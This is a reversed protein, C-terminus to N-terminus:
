AHSADLEAARRQLTENLIRERESLAEWAQTLEDHEESVAAMM